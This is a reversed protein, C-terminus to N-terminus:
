LPKRHPFLTSMLQDIQDRGYVRDSSSVSLASSGNNDVSTGASYYSSGQGLQVGNNEISGTGSLPDTPDIFRGDQGSLDPTEIPKPGLPPPEVFTNVFEEEEGPSQYSVRASVDTGVPTAATQSFNTHSFTAQSYSAYTYRGNQNIKAQATSARSASFSRKQESQTSASNDICSGPPVIAGSDMDPEIVTSGAGICAGKGVEGQGVILVNAGLNAESRIHLVGNRAQVCVGGALCAGSEIVIRSGVPAQLVVGPAIAATAAVTVDGVVCYHTHSVLAPERDIAPNSSYSPPQM